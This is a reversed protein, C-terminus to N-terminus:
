VGSLPHVSRIARADSDTVLRKLVVESLVVVGNTMLRQLVVCGSLVVVRETPIRENAVYSALVICGDTIASAFVDSAIAIDAHRQERNNAIPSFSGSPAVPPCCLRNGDITSSSLDM